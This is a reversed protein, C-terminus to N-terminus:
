LIIETLKEKSFILRDKARKLLRSINAQSTNYKFALEYQTLPEDYIVSYLYEEYIDRHLGELMSLKLIYDVIDEFEDDSFSLDIETDGELINTLNSESDDSSYNHDLSLITIEQYKDLFRRSCIGESVITEKDEDSLPLEM